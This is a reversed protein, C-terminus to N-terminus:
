PVSLLLGKGKLRSLDEVRLVLQKQKNYNNVNNFLSVVALRVSVGFTTSWLPAKYLGM